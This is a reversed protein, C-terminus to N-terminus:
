QPDSPGDSSTTKIHMQHTRTKSVCPRRINDTGRLDLHINSIFGTSPQTVRVNSRVMLSPQSATRATDSM